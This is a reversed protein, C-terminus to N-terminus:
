ETVEPLQAWFPFASDHLNVHHFSFSDWMKNNKDYAIIHQFKDADERTPPEKATNHIRTRTLVSLVSEYYQYDKAFEDSEEDTLYPNVTLYYERSEDLLKVTRDILENTDM